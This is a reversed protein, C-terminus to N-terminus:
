ASWRYRNPKKIGNEREKAARGKIEEINWYVPPGRHYFNKFFTKDTFKEEQCLIVLDIINLCNDLYGFMLPKM